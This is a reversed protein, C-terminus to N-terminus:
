ALPKPPPSEPAEGPRDNMARYRLSVALASDRRIENMASMNPPSALPPAPSVDILQIPHCIDSTICCRSNTKIAAGVLVPTSVIAVILALIVAAIQTDFAFRNKKM